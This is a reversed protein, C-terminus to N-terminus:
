PFLRVSRWRSCPFLGRKASDSFPSLGRKRNSSPVPASSATASRRCSPSKCGRTTNLYFVSSNTFVALPPRTRPMGDRPNQVTRPPLGDHQALVALGFDDAAVSGMLAVGSGGFHLDREQALADAIEGLVELRMRFVVM